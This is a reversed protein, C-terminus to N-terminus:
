IVRSFRSSWIGGFSGGALHRQMGSRSSSKTVAGGRGGIDCNVKKKNGTTFEDNGGMATM